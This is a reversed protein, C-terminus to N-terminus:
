WLITTIPRLGSKRLKVFWKGCRKADSFMVSHYKTGNYWSLRFARPLMASYNMASTELVTKKM